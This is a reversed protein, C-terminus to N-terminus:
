DNLSLSRPLVLFVYKFRRYAEVERMTEKVADSGTPCRIKKLAFQRQSSYCDVCLVFSWGAVSVVTSMKRWTYSHSAARESSRSSKTQSFVHSSMRTETMTFSNSPLQCTRGNIKIKASPHCLCSSLAWLADKIRDKINDMSHPPLSVTSATWSLLTEHVCSRRRDGCVTVCLM